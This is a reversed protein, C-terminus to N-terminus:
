FLSAQKLKPTVKPLEIKPMLVKNNIKGLCQDTDSFDNRYRYDVSVLDKETIPLLGWKIIDPFVIESKVSLKFWKEKYIGLINALKTVSKISEPFIAYLSFNDNNLIDESSKYTLMRKYRDYDYYRFLIEKNFMSGGNHSLDVVHDIFVKDPIKGYLMGAEAIKGWKPGGFSYTETHSNQRGEWNCENFLKVLVPLYLRPNFNASRKYSALRGISVPKNSVEPIYNIQKVYMDARRLAHRAEGFTALSIYDFFAGALHSTLYAHNRELEKIEADHRFFQPSPSTSNKKTEIETLIADQFYFTAVAMPLNLTSVLVNQETM